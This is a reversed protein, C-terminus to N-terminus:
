GTMTPPSVPNITGQNSTSDPARKFCGIAVFNMKTSLQGTDECIALIRTVFDCSSLKLWAPFNSTPRGLGPVCPPPFCPQALELAEGYVLTGFVTGAEPQSVRGGCLSWNLAEEKNTAPTVEGNEPKRKSRAEQRETHEARTCALSPRM